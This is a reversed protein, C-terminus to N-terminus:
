QVGGKVATINATAAFVKGCILQSVFSFNRKVRNARRPLIPVLSFGFSQRERRVASLSCEYHM